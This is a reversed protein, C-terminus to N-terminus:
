SAPKSDWSFSGSERPSTPRKSFGNRLRSPPNGVSPISVCLSHATRWLTLFPSTNAPWRSTDLCTYGLRHMKYLCIFLTMVSGINRENRCPGFQRSSNCTAAVLFIKPHVNFCFFSVSMSRLYIRRWRTDLRTPISRCDVATETQHM